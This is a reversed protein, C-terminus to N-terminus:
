VVDGFSFFTVVIDDGSATVDFSTAAPYFFVDSTGTALTAVSEDGEGLDVTIVASGAGSVAMSHYALKQFDASKMSNGNYVYTETNTIAENDVRVTM